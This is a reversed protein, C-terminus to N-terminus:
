AYYRRQIISRRQRQINWLDVATFSKEHNLDVAQSGNVLLTKKENEDNSIVTFLDNNQTNM